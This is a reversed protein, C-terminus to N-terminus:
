VVVKQNEQLLWLLGHNYLTRYSSFFLGKMKQKTNSDYMNTRLAKPVIDDLSISTVVEKSEKLADEFYKHFMENETTRYGAARNM